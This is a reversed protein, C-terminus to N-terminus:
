YIRAPTRLYNPASHSIRKMCEEWIAEHVEPIPNPAIVKMQEILEALRLYTNRNREVFELPYEPKRSRAAHPDADVVLSIDPRAAVRALIRAYWQFEPRELPLNALEDYIYRDFVVIDKGGRRLRFVRWTLSLADLVYCGLRLLLVPWATVNKDKRTIPKEQTGTGPDGQFIAHSLSERFTSLTAIQDWFTLLSV